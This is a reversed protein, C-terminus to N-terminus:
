GETDKGTTKKRFIGYLTMGAGLAIVVAWWRDIWEGILAAGLLLCPLAIRMIKDKNFFAYLLVMGLLLSIWKGAPTDLGLIGLKEKIKAWWSEPNSSDDVGTGGEDAANNITVPMDFQYVYSSSGTLRVSITKGGEGTIKPIVLSQTGLVPTFYAVPSGQVDIIGSSLNTEVKCENGITLSVVPTEDETYATRTLSMSIGKTADSLYWYASHCDAIEDTNNSTDVVLSQIFGTRTSRMADFSLNNVLGGYDSSGATLAPSFVAYRWHSVAQQNATTGGFYNAAINELTDQYVVYSGNSNILLDYDGLETAPNLNTKWHIFMLDDDYTVYSSFATTYQTYNTTGAYTHNTAETSSPAPQISVWESTLNNNLEKVQVFGSYDSALITQWAYISDVRVSDNHTDLVTGATDVLELTVNAGSDGNVLFSMTEDAYMCRLTELTINDATEDGVVYADVAANTHLTMTGRTPPAVYKVTLEFSGATFQIGQDHEWTPSYQLGQNETQLQFYIYNTSGYKEFSEELGLIDVHQDAAVALTNYHQPASQRGYGNATMIRCNSADNQGFTNDAGWNTKYLSWYFDSYIPSNDIKATCTFNMSAELIEAGAPIVSIDFKRSGCRPFIRHFGAQDDDGYWGVNLTTGGWGTYVSSYLYQMWDLHWLDNGGYSPGGLNSAEAIVVTVAGAAEVPESVVFAPVLGALVILLIAIHLIKM